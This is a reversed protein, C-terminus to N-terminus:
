PIESLKKEAVYTCLKKPRLELPPTIKKVKKTSSSPVHTTATPIDYPNIEM